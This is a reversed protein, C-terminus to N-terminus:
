LSMGGLWGSLETREDTFDKLQLALPGILENLKAIEDDCERIREKAKLILFSPGKNSQVIEAAEAPKESAECGRADYVMTEAEKREADADFYKEFETGKTMDAMAEAFEPNEKLHNPKRKDHPVGKLVVGNAELIDRINAKSTCNLDALIGIQEAKRKAQNYDRVIEKDTMIM